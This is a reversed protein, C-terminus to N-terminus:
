TQNLADTTLVPQARNCELSLAVQVPGFIATPSLRCERCLALYLTRADRMQAIFVRYMSSIDQMLKRMHNNVAVEIGLGLHVAGFKDTDAEPEVGVVADNWFIREPENQSAVFHFVLRYSFRRWRRYLTVSIASLVLYSRLLVITRCARADDFHTMFSAACASPIGRVVSLSAM